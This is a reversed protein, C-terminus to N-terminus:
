MPHPTTTIGGSIVGGTCSMDCPNCIPECPNCAPECPACAPECPACSAPECPNCSGLVTGGSLVPSAVVPSTHSTLYVKETSHQANRRQFLSGSRCWSSSSDSSSCGIAFSSITLAVAFFLAFNKMTRDGQCNKPPFPDIIPKKRLFGAEGGIKELSSVSLRSEKESPDNGLKASM